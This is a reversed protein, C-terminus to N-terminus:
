TGHYDIRMPCKGGIFKEPPATWVQYDGVPPCLRRACHDCQLSDHGRDELMHAPTDTGPPRIGGCRAIDAPLNM